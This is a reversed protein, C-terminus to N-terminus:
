AISIKGIMNMQQQRQAIRDNYAKRQAEEEARKNQEGQAMVGVALGGAMLYPNGTAVGVASMGNGVAGLGDGGAAAEVAQAAQPSALGKVAMDQGSVAPTQAQQKKNRELVANEYGTRGTGFIGQPTDGYGKHDPGSLDEVGGENKLRWYAELEQRNMAM